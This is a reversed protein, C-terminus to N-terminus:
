CLGIHFIMDDVKLFGTDYKFELAEKVVEELEDGEFGDELYYNRAEQEASNENEYYNTFYDFLEIAEKLTEPDDICNFAYNVTQPAEKAEELTLNFHELFLLFAKTQFEDTFVQEGDEKYEQWHALVYQNIKNM